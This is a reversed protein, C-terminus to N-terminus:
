LSLALLAYFSTADIPERDRIRETFPRLMRELADQYERDYALYEYRDDDSMARWESLTVGYHRM